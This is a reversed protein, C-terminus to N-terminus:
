LTQDNDAFAVTVGDSFAVPITSTHESELRLVELTEGVLALWGGGPSWCVNHYVKDGALREFMRGSRDLLEVGKVEGGVVALLEGGPHFAVRQGSRMWLLEFGM